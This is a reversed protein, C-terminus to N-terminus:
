LGFVEPLMAVFAQIAPKNRNENLYVVYETNVLRADRVTLFHFRNDAGREAESVIGVGLGHAVAERVGERSGIELINKIRVGRDVVAKEFIARTTSGPERLVVTQQELEKLQISRRNDWSHGRTVFAVLRDPKLPIANIQGSSVVNPLLVIEFKREHLSKLLQESNGFSLSLKVAPYRRSFASLMPMIHYPADAGLSLEGGSLGRAATLLQEIEGETVSLRQTREFVANGLETLEVGQRRRKFLTVGFRQELERVQASLTPQTLNLAQAARSFSGNVAVAHFSRLQLPNVAM